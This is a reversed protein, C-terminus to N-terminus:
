VCVCLLLFLFFSAKIRSKCINIILQLMHEYACFFSEILTCNSVIVLQKIVAQEVIICYRYTCYAQLHPVVVYRARDILSCSVHSILIFQTGKLRHLYQLYLERFSQFLRLMIYFHQYKKNEKNTLKKHVNKTQRAFRLYMYEGLVPLCM